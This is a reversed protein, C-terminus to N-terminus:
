LEDLPEPRSPPDALGGSSDWLALLVRFTTGVGVTSSVEIRGGMNEVIRQSVALGLGTGKARTTFFPIFINPLIAEDIGRGNDELAVEVMERSRVQGEAGFVRRTVSAVVRLAPPSPAVARRPPTEHPEGEPATGTAQIANLALNLFVQRLTEPNGRVHPLSGPLVLRVGVGWTDAQASFLPLTKGLISELDCEVLEGGHPRAYDLFQSVVNNLRNAEDIIIELFAEPPEEDSDPDTSVAHDPGILALYQAAGKIAGLPNRIEHALGAAMEGLAALRDRERLKAVVRSNEISIAAQSTIQVLARVDEASYPEHMREDDVALLGIVRDGSVIPLCVTARLATMVAMTAECAEVTAREEQGEGEEIAEALEAIIDELVMVRQRRLEDLFNHHQAVELTPPAETISGALRYRLSDEELVYLAAHTVRRTNELRTLILQALEDLDVVNALERRLIALQRVFRFRDRFLLRNVTEEISAKMPEFLILVVFSAIITNFFFIGTADDIWVALVAYLAALVLVLAVLVALKGVLENLDLLRYQLLMQSLFYLFVVIVVHALAPMYILVVGWAGLDPIHGLLSLTIASLGGYGLYRLRASEVPGLSRRLRLFILLISILLSVYIYLFLLVGFWPASWLPSFVVPLLALSMVGIVQSAVQVVGTQANLWSQFFKLATFPIFLGSIYGVRVWMESQTVAALFEALNWFSLVFSLLAFYVSPRTRRGGILVGVALALLVISALLASQTQITV